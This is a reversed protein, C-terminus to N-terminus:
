PLLLNATSSLAHLVYISCRFWLKTNPLNILMNQETKTSNLISLFCFNCKEEDYLKFIERIYLCITVTVFFRNKNRLSSFKSYFLLTYSLIWDINTEGMRWYLLTSISMPTTYYLLCLNYQLFQWYVDLKPSLPWQLQIPIVTFFSLTRLIVVDYQIPVLIRTLECEKHFIHNKFIKHFLIHKIM